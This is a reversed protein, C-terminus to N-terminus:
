AMELTVSLYHHHVLFSPSHFYCESGVVFAHWKCITEIWLDIFTVWNGCYDEFSVLHIRIVYRGRSISISTDTLNRRLRWCILNCRSQNCDSITSCLELVLCFNMDDVTKQQPKQLLIEMHNHFFEWDTYIIKLAIPMLLIYATLCIFISTDFM